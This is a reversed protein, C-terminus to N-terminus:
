AGGLSSTPVGSHCLLQVGSTRRAGGPEPPVGRPSRGGCSGGSALDPAAAAGCAAAPRAKSAAAAAPGSCRRHPGLLRKELSRYEAISENLSAARADLAARADALGEALGPHASGDRCSRRYEGRWRHREEELEAAERRLERRRARLAEMAAPDATPGARAIAPPTGACAPQKHAAAAVSIQRAAGHPKGAGVEGDSGLELLEDRFSLTSFASGRADFAAQPPGPDGNRGALQPGFGGVGSDPRGRRRATSPQEAGCSAAYGESGGRATFLPPSALSGPATPGARSLRPSRSGACGGESLARRLGGLELQHESTRLERARRHLRQEAEAALREKERLFREWDTLVQERHQLELRQQHVAQEDLRARGDREARLQGLQADRAHLQLQLRRREEERGEVEAQARRAEAGAVEVEAERHRLEGQLRLADRQAERLAARTASHEVREKQLERAAEHLRREAGAIEVAEEGAGLPGGLKLAGLQVRPKQLSVDGPRAGEVVQLRSALAGLEKQLQAILSTAGVGEGGGGWCQRLTVTRTGFGEPLPGSVQLDANLEGHRLTGELAFEDECAAAALMGGDGGTSTALVPAPKLELLERDVAQMGRWARPQEIGARRSDDAGGRPSPSLEAIASLSSLELSTAPAGSVRRPSGPRAASPEGADLQSWLQSLLKERSGEERLEAALVSALPPTEPSGLELLRRREE